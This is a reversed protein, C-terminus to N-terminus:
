KNVIIKKKKPVEIGSLSTRYAEAVQENTECAFVYNNIHMSKPNIQGTVAVGKAFGMGGDPAQVIMKPNKLEVGHLNDILEGIYEGSMCVVSVIDGKKM